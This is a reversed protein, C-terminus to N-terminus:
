VRPYAEEIIASLPSHNAFIRRPIKQGRNSPVWVALFHLFNKQQFHTASCGHTASSGASGLTPQLSRCLIDSASHFQDM